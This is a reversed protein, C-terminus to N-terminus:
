IKSIELVKRFKRLKNRTVQHSHEIFSRIVKPLTHYSYPKYIREKWTHAGIGYVGLDVAPIDLTRITDVPLPYISDMLPFNAKLKNIDETTEWMALYSSDSLFPFFRRKVFNEEPFETMMQELAQDINDDARLFESVDKDFSVGNYFHVVGVVM